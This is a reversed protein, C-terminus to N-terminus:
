ALRFPEPVITLLAGRQTAALGPHGKQTLMVLPKKVKQGGGKLKM